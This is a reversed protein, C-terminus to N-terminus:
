VSNGGISPTMDPEFYNPGKLIKGDARVEYSGDPAIKSMNSAHVLQFATALNIRPRQATGELVYQVDALEKALKRADGTTVYFDIAECVEEAERMLLEKRLQAWAQISSCDGGTAESWEALMAAATPLQMAQYMTILEALAQMVRGNPRHDMGALEDLRSVLEMPLEDVKM